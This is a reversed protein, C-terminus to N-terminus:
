SKGSAIHRPDLSVLKSMVDPDRLLFTCFRSVLEYNVVELRVPEQFRYPFGDFCEWGANM